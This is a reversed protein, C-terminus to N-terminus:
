ANARRLKAALSSIGFAGLSATMIAACAGLFVAGGTMASEFTKANSLFFQSTNTGYKHDIVGTAILGAVFVLASGAIAVGGICSTAYAAYAVKGALEQAPTHQPEVKAVPASCDSCQPAPAERRLASLSMIISTELSALGHGMGRYREDNSICRCVM